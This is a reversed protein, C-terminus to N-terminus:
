TTAGFKPFADPHCARCIETGVYQDAPATAAPSVPRAPPAPACSALLLFLGALLLPPGGGALGVRPVPDGRRTM